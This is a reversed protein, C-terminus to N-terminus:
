QKKRCSQCIGFLLIQCGDAAFGHKEEIEEVIDSLECFPEVDEISNCIRCFLHNHYSLNGDFRDSKGDIKIRKIYNNESLQNLNRYVTALSVSPCDERINEYVTEATPHCKVSRVYNLIMERQRSYNM